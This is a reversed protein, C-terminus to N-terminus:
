NHQPIGALSTCAVVACKTDRTWEQGERGGGGGAVAFSPARRAADARPAGGALSPRGESGNPLTLNGEDYTGGHVVVTDGGGMRSTAHGISRCPADATCAAPAVTLSCTASTRASTCGGSAPPGTSSGALGSGSSTSGYPRRTSVTSPAYVRPSQGWFSTAYDWGVLGERAGPLGPMRWRACRTPM